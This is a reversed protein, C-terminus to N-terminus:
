VSGMKSGISASFCKQPLTAKNSSVVFFQFPLKVMSYSLQSDKKQETPSYRGHPSCKEDSLSSLILTDQSPQCNTKSDM